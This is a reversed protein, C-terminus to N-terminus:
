ASGLLQKARTLSDELGLRRLIELRGELNTRAEELEDEIDPVKEFIMKLWEKIEGGAKDLTPSNERFERHSLCEWFTGKILLEFAVRLLVFAVNYYTCLAEFLSRHAHNFVEWQYLLFASKSHWDWNPEKGASSPALLAALHMFEHIGDHARQLDSLKERLSPKVNELGFESITHNYASELLEQQRKIM